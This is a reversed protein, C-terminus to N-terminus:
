RQQDSSQSCMLTEVTGADRLRAGVDRLRERIVQRGVEAKIGRQASAAVHNAHEVLLRRREPEDTVEELEEIVELLQLLIVQHSEGFTRIQDFELKLLDGFTPSDVIVRTKGNREYRRRPPLEMSALRRLISGIHDLCTSATSVANFAPSLSRVAIDVLQYIGYEVDQQQTRTEGIKFHSRVKSVMEQSARDPPSLWALVAGNPVFVGANRQVTLVLDHKNLVKVLEDIKIVQVYGSSGEAPVPVGEPIGEDEGRADGPQGVLAHEIAKLTRREVGATIDTGQLSNAVHHIFYIFVGVGSVALVVAGTLALAPVPEPEGRVYTLVLMAYVFTGVLVGLTIQNGRNSMYNHLMKPTYQQAALTLAVITLSFTTAAIAAMATAITSLLNRATDPGPTLLFPWQSVVRPDLYEELGVLGLAAVAAVAVLVMPLFWFSAALVNGFNPLRM